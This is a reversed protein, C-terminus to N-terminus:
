FQLFEHAVSCRLVIESLPGLLYGGEPNTVAINLQFSLM